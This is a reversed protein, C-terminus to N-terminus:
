RYKTYCNLMTCKVFKQCSANYLKLVVAPEQSLLGVVVVVVGRKFLKWFREEMFTQEVTFNLYFEQVPRAVSDRLFIKRDQM